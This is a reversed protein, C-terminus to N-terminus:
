AAVSGINRNPSPPVCLLARSGHRILEASEQALGRSRELGVARVSDSARPVESDLVIDPM